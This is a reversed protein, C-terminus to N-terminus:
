EALHWSILRPPGEEMLQKLLDVDLKLPRRSRPLDGVQLNGDKFRNFWYQVMRISLVDEDM